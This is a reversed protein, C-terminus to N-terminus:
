DLLGVSKLQYEYENKLANWVTQRDFRTVISKRANAALRKTLEPEEILREM